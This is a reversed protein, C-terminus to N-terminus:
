RQSLALLSSDGTGSLTLSRHVFLTSRHQEELYIFSVTDTKLASAISGFHTMAM